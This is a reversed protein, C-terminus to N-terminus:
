RGKFVIFDIGQCMRMICHFHINERKKKTHTTTATTGIYNLCIEEPLLSPNCAGESAQMTHQRFCFFIFYYYYFIGAFLLQFVEWCNIILDDPSNNNDNINTLVYSCLQGAMHPTMEVTVLSYKILTNKKLQQMSPSYKNLSQLSIYIILCPHLIIIINQLQKGLYKSLLINRIVVSYQLVYLISKSKEEVM